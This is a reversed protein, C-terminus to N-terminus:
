RLISVALALLSPISLLVILVVCGKGSHQATSDSKEEQLIAINEQAHRRLKAERGDQDIYDVPEAAILRQWYEIARQKNGTQQYLHGLQFLSDLLPPSSLYDCQTLMREIYEIGAQPNEVRARTSGALSCIMDFRQLLSRGNRDSFQSHKGERDLRLGSVIESEARAWESSYIAQEHPLGQRLAIRVYEGGLLVRAFAEREGPLGAALAREFETIATETQDGALSAALANGLHDQASEEDAM